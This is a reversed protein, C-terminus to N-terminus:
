KAAKRMQEIFKRGHYAQEDFDKTRLWNRVILGESFDTKSGYLASLESHISGPGKPLLVLNNTNHINKAGFKDINAPNQEVIHHWEYGKPAHGIESKFAGFTEYGKGEANVPPVKMALSKSARKPRWRVPVMMSMASVGAAIAGETTADKRVREMLANDHLASTLDDADSVDVGERVLAGVLGKAYGDLGSTGTLAVAGGIPGLAATAILSVTLAPLSEVGIARAIEGPHERLLRDVEAPSSAESLRRLADSSPLEDLRRQADILRAVAGALNPAANRNRLLYQKEVLTLKDPAERAKQQLELVKEQRRAKSDIDLAAGSKKSEADFRKFAVGL